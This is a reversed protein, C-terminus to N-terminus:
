GGTLPGIALSEAAGGTQSIRYNITGSTYAVCNLRYLTQREPEGFTFSIPGTTWLAIVGATGLNCPIYTLGGDFSRELQVTANFQINAGTFTAAADAGTTVVGNGTLAFQFPQPTSDLRNTTPNASLQIIGPTWVPNGQTPAIAAQVIGTVTTGAPLTIGEATSPVTVTAGLLRDTPFSGTIKGDASITGPHTRPALALTVNTGALAGITSGRPLNVSNIADGAALGAGSAVTAALSGATTTLATNISDWIAVNMPGRFAFAPQPGVATIQGAVVANAQDGANPLGSASAGIAAPISM